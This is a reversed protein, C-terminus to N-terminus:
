RVYIVSEQAANDNEGIKLVLKQAGSDVGRPVYAIIQIMGWLRYPASGAYYIIAPQGGISLTLPRSTFPNASLSIGNDPATPNWTGAGTAFLVVVSGKAAPSDETNAIYDSAQYNQIGLIRPASDSVPISLTATPGSWRKVAVEATQQIAVGYPVMTEIRNPTVSLVPATIGNFTVSTGFLATPYQGTENYAGLSEAPALKQGIIAVTEGPTVSALLKGNGTLGEIEPKPPQTITLTVTRGAVM